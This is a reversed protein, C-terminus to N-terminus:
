RKKKKIENKKKLSLTERARATTSSVRYVVRTKFEFIWRDTKRTSLNLTHVVVGLGYRGKSLMDGWIIDLVEVETPWLLRLRELGQLFAPQTSVLSEFRVQTGTLQCPALTLPLPVQNFGQCVSAAGRMVLPLFSDRTEKFTVAQIDPLNVPERPAKIAM